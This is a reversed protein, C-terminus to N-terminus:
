GLNRESQTGGEVWDFTSLLVAALGREPEHRIECLTSFIAPEPRGHLARIPPNAALKLWM